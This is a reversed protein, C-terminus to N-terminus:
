DNLIRRKSFIFQKQIFLLLLHRTFPTILLATMLTLLLILLVYSCTVALSSQAPFLWRGMLAMGLSGLLPLCLDQFYWLYKEKKLLRTFMVQAGILVNGMNIAIWVIAAGVAGYRNTMWFLMPILLIVAILNQYLSLKTWGYAIQLAYPINMMVHLTVGITLLSVLLHTNNSVTPSRTWVLLIEPAFLVLIIAIPLVLVSMFQCSNHYLTKLGLANNLSVLQSFRPFIAVFISTGIMYLGSSVTFALSYYGFVELPLLKSLIVKDAQLLIVSLIGIGTMDTAFGRISFLLKKQFQSKHNTTPLAKWLFFACLITQFASVFIQWSFFSQITPSVLWLILVSGLGRLTSTVVTICNFLVQRQLGLLGGSYLILPFQFAVALGMMFISQHVANAPLHKSNIWYNSIFPSSLITILAISGAIIWYIIELTHVLDRSDQEKGHQVSIQAIERNMATSLGMDLLSFITQLTAFFGILGYAEMGLFNIYLPVFLLSLLTAWGKGIFNAIINKKLQSV